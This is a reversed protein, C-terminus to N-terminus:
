RAGKGFLVAWPTRALVYIDMWLSWNRIYYIDLRQQVVLDADSRATVQWYGTLGPKVSRRLQRFDQGFSELHYYPFPRPGVLSMEGKIVNWIQPLEDLS